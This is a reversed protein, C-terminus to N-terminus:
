SAKRTHHCLVAGTSPMPVTGRFSGAGVRVTQGCKACKYIYVTRWPPQFGRVRESACPHSLDILGGCKEMM